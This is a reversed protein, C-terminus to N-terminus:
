LAYAFLGLGARRAFALSALGRRKSVVLFLAGSWFFGGSWNSRSVSRSTDGSPGLIAVLAPKGRVTLSQRRPVSGSTAWYNELCLFVIQPGPFAYPKNLFRIKDVGVIQDAVAGSSSNLDVNRAIRVYPHVAIPSRVDQVM